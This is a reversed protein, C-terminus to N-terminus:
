HDRETVQTSEVTPTVNVTTNVVIQKLVGTKMVAVVETQKPMMDKMIVRRAMVSLTTLVTGASMLLHASVAMVSQTVNEQGSNVAKALGGLTVSVNVMWSALTNLVSKVTQTLHDTVAMVIITANVPTNM